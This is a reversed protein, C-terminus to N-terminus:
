TLVVRVLRCDPGTFRECGESSVSLVDASQVLGPTMPSVNARGSGPWFVVLGVVAAVTVAALLGYVIRSTRNPGLARQRHGGTM